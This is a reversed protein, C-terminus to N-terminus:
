TSGSLGPMSLDLLLIDAPHPAAAGAPSRQRGRGGGAPRRHQGAVPAPRQARHQPRGRRHRPDSEHIPNKDMDYSIDIRTGGPGSEIHLRRGHMRERMGLLGLGGGRRAAVEALDFGCGNDSVSLRLRGAECTLVIAVETARAHKAINTLSEQV